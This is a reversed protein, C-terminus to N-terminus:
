LIHKIVIETSKNTYVSIVCSSNLMKFSNLRVSRTRLKIESEQIWNKM